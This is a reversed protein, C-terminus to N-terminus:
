PVGIRAENRSCIGTFREASRLWIKIKNSFSTSGSLISSDVEGNGISHEVVSSRCCARYGFFQGWLGRCAPPEQWLSGEPALLRRPQSSGLIALISAPTASGAAVPDVESRDPERNGREAGM